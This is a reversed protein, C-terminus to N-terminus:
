HGGGLDLTVTATDCNTPSAIECGASGARRPVKLVTESYIRRLVVFPFGIRALAEYKGATVASKITLASGNGLPKM